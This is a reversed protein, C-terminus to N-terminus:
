NTTMQLGEKLVFDIVISDGDVLKITKTSLTSYGIWIASFKHYGKKVEFRYKGDSNAKTLITNDLSKIVVGPLTRNNLDTDYITGTVVIKKSETKYKKKSYFGNRNVACGDMIALGILLTIVQKTM